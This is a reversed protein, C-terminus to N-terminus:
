ERSTNLASSYLDGLESASRDWSFDRSSCVSLSSLGAHMRADSLIRWAREAFAESSTPEVLFGTQGHRVVSRLGGVASAVVPVGCSQAELAVLGFTETLSPVLCVDAAQYFRPLDVHPQAPIFDVSGAIGLEDTLHHLEALESDGSTGSPGGVILLKTKARDLRGWDILNGLARIATGAAKLPQLRGVFLLVREADIGLIRRAESRDGPIFLDHDVGPPIVHIKEPHAAYLDVLWCREDGTSAVIADAEAIVRAEGALRSEPESAIRTSRNKARGLTHFTHVFPVGLRAALRSAVKGSLWYHSHVLDYGPTNNEVFRLLNATFEPLYAPLEEKTIEPDGAPVQMVRVGPFLEYIDPLSSGDKRSYIDVGVGRAALAKAIQRVYVTMGGADGAGPEALPNSHVVIMAARRVPRFARASKSENGTIPQVAM